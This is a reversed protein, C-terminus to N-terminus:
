VGKWCVKIYYFQSTCLYVNNKKDRSLFRLNYTSTLIAQQPPELSYVFDINQASILFFIDTKWRFIKLKQRNFKRYIEHKRLSTNTNVRCIM